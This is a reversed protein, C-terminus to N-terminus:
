TSTEVNLDEVVHVGVGQALPELVHIDIKGLDFFHIEDPPTFWETLQDAACIAVVPDDRAVHDLVEGIQGPEEGVALINQFGFTHNRKDKGILTVAEVAESREGRGPLYQVSEPLSPVPWRGATDKIVHHVADGEVSLDRPEGSCKALKSAGVAKLVCSVEPVLGRRADVIHIHM